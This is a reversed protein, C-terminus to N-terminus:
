KICKYRHHKELWQNTVLFPIQHNALQTSKVTELDFDM